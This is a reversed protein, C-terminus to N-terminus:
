ANTWGSRPELERSMRCAAAMTTAEPLTESLPLYEARRGFVKLDESAWSGHESCYSFAQIVPLEMLSETRPLNVRLVGEAGRAFKAIHLMTPGGALLVWILEADQEVRVEIHHSDVDSTVSVLPVWQSAGSIRRSERRSLAQEQKANLDMTPDDITTTTSSAEKGYDMVDATSPTGLCFTSLFKQIIADNEWERMAAFLRCRSGARLLPV